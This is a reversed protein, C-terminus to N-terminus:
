ASSENEMFSARWSRREKKILTGNWELYTPKADAPYAIWGIKFNKCDKAAMEDLKSRVDDHTLLPTDTTSIEKLLNDTLTKLSTVSETYMEVVKTLAKDYSIVRTKHAVRKPALYSHALLTANLAVHLGCENSQPPQQPTAMPVVKRSKGDLEQSIFAAVDKIESQKIVGEASDCIMISTETLFALLWHHRVWLPIFMSDGTSAERLWTTARNTTATPLSLPDVFTIGTDRKLTTFFYELDLNSWDAGSAFKKSSPIPKHPIQCIREWREKSSTSAENDNMPAEDQKSPFPPENLQAVREDELHRTRTTMRKRVMADTSRLVAAYSTDHQQPTSTSEPTPTPTPQETTITPITTSATHQARTSIGKGKVAQKNCTDETKTNSTTSKIATTANTNNNNRTPTAQNENNDPTTKTINNVTDREVKNNSNEVKADQKHISPTATDTTDAKTNNNSSTEANSRKDNKSRTTCHNKNNDKGDTPQSTITETKIIMM